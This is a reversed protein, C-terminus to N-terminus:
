RVRSVHVLYLRFEDSCIVRRFEVLCIMLRFEVMQVGGDVRIRFAGGFLEDRQVCGDGIM